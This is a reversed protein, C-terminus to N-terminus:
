GFEAWSVGVLREPPFLYVSLPLLRGSAGRGDQEPSPAANFALRPLLQHRDRQQQQQQQHSPLPLSFHPLSAGQTVKCQLSNPDQFNGGFWGTGM